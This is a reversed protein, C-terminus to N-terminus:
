MSNGRATASDCAAVGSQRPAGPSTCISEADGERLMIEAGVRVDSGIIDGASSYVEDCAIDELGHNITLPVGGRFLLTKKRMM